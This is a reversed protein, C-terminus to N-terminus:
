GDTAYVAGSFSYIGLLGAQTGQRHLIELDETGISSPEKSDEAGVAEQINTRAVESIKGNTSIWVDTTMSHTALKDNGERWWGEHRGNKGDAGAM